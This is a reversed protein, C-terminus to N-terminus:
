EKLEPTRFKLLYKEPLEVITGDGFEIGYTVAGIPEGRALSNEPTKVEWLSCVEALEGPRFQAPANHVVRVTEGWKFKYKEM